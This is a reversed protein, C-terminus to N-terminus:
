PKRQPALRARLTALARDHWRFSLEDALVTAAAVSESAARREGTEALVAALAVRADYEHLRMQCREALELMEELDARAEHQRFLFRYLEARTLLGEPLLDLQGKERLASVAAEAHELAADLDGTGRARLEALCARAAALHDADSASESRNAPLNALARVRADSWRGLAILVDGYERGQGSFLFMGGGAARQIEEAKAYQDEADELRSARYLAQGLHSRGIIREGLDNAGDAYEVSLKAYELGGGLDGLLLCTHALNGATVSVNAVNGTAQDFAVGAELLSRAEELRGTVGLYIGTQGIVFGRDEPKLDAAISTWHEDFFWSIAALDSEVLGLAQWSLQEGGRAAEKGRLIREYFVEDLVEQRRGTECGHRVCRYLPTLEDVTTPREPAAGRYHQYLRDHGARWAEGATTRLSSQFHERVLPHADLSDPGHHTVPMVLRCSRLRDVLDGWGTDDLVSLANTLDPIAAQRLAELAAGDCPGDFLSITRLLQLEPGAGFRQEFATLLRRAHREVGGQREVPPIAGLTDAPDPSADQRFGIFLSLALAHNGFEESVRELDQGDLGGERLVIAGARPTLVGLHETRVARAFPRLEAIAHRSTLVVLGRNDRALETLLRAVSPDRITEAEEGASSQLADVGDLILLTAERRISRALRNGTEWSSLRATKEEGLHTALHSLFRDASVAPEGPLRTQFSWGYVRRAGRYSEQEMRSLWAEVLTSKGVGASGILSVVHTDPSSWADELDNILKERGHVTAGTRPLGEVDVDRPARWPREPSDPSKLMLRLRDAFDAFFEGECGAYDVVVARGDPPSIQLPTLWSFERWPCNELLIPMVRLGGTKRELLAPVEQETCFASALYAKSILCVAAASDEIAKRIKSNWQEGPGITRDHWAHLGIRELAACVRDKWEEDAHSYSIFVQPLMTPNRDCMISFGM